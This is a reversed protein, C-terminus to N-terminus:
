NCSTFPERRQIFEAIM